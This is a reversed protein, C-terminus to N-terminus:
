AESRIQIFRHLLIIKRVRFFRTKDSLDFINRRMHIYVLHNVEYVGKLIRPHTEARVSPGCATARVTGKTCGAPVYECLLDTRMKCPHGCTRVHPSGLHVWHPFGPGGVGEVSLHGLFM